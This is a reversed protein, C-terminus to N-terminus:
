SPFPISEIPVQSKMLYAPKRVRPRDVKTIKAKEETKQQSMFRNFDCNSLCASFEMEPYLITTRIPIPIIEKPIVLQVIEIQHVNVQSTLQM